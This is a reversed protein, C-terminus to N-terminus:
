KSCIMRSSSSNNLIRSYMREFGARQFNSRSFGSAAGPDSSSHGQFRSSVYPRIANPRPQLRVASASAPHVSDNTTPALRAPGHPGFATTQRVPWDRQGVHASRQRKDYPGAASAWTPRVGDNTTPALPARGRPGFAATQRLPWDRQGVRPSRQRKDYPGAASAWARRVGDNITPVLPAPGHAGFATTQRLPWGRQGM